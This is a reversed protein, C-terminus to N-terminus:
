PEVKVDIPLAPAVVPSSQFFRAQYDGPPLPPSGVGPICAPLTGQAATSCSGYSAWITVAYRSEGVPIPLPQACQPWAPEADIADNGLMVAFLSGCGSAPIEHGTNNEVVVHGTMKSGATMTTSPLEIRATVDPRLFRAIEIGDATLFTLQGDRIESRPANEIQGFDPVDPGCNMLTSLIPRDFHIGNEDLRYGGSLHNCGDSGTWRGRGDFSLQPDANLPPRNLPGKKMYGYGAITYALWTGTIATETVPLPQATSTSTSTAAPLTIRRNDTTDVRRWAIGGALALVLLGATLSTLRQTSRHRRFSRSRVHVSALLADDPEVPANDDLDELKV